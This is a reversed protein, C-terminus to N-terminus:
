ESKSLRFIIEMWDIRFGLSLLIGLTHLEPTVHIGDQSTRTQQRPRVLVSVSTMSGIRSKTRKKRYKLNKLKM